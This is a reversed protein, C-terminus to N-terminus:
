DGDDFLTTSPIFVSNSESGCNTCRLNRCPEKIETLRQHDAGFQQYITRYGTVVVQKSGPALCNPCYHGHDPAASFVRHPFVHVPYKEEVSVIAHAHSKDHNFLKAM